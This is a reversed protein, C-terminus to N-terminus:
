RPIYAVLATLSCLPHHARHTELPLEHTHRRPNHAQPHSFYGARARARTRPSPSLHAARRRSQIPAPLLARLQRVQLRPATCAPHASPASTFAHSGHEQTVAPRFHATTDLTSPRPLIDLIRHANTVSASGFCPVNPDSPHRTNTEPDPQPSLEPPHHYRLPVTDLSTHICRRPRPLLRQLPAQIRRTSPLPQPPQAPPNPAQCRSPLLPRQICVRWAGAAGSYTFVFVDFVSCACPLAADDFLM